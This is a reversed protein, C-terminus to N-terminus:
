DDEWDEEGPFNERLAVHIAKLCDEKRYRELDPWGYARYIGKVMDVAEQFRKDPPNSGYGYWGEVVRRRSIPVFHLEKFNHKLTAFFDPISWVTDCGERWDREGPSIAEGESDEDDYVGDLGLVVRFPSLSLFENAADHWYVVGLKIDLLIGDDNRPRETLGVVHSPVHEFINNSETAM